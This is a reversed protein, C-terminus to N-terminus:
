LSVCEESPSIQAHDRAAPGIVSAFPSVKVSLNLENVPECVIKVIAYPVDHFRHLLQLRRIAPLEATLVLVVQDQDLLVVIVFHPPAANALAAVELSDHLGYLECRGDNSPVGPALIANM